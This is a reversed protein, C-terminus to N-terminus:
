NQPLDNDIVEIISDPLTDDVAWAATLSVNYVITHWEEDSMKSKPHVSMEKRKILFEFVKNHVDQAKPSMDDWFEDDTYKNTLM